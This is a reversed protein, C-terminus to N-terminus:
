PTAPQAAPCHALMDSCTKLPDHKAGPDHLSYESDYYFSLTDPISIGKIDYPV